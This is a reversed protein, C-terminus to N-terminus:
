SSPACRLKEILHMQNFVLHMQSEATVAFTETSLM